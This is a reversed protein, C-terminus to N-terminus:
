DGGVPSELSEWSLEALGAGLAYHETLEIRLCRVTMELAHVNRGRPKQQSFVGHLVRREDKTGHATIFYRKTGRDEFPANLANDVFVRRMPRAPEFVIELHAKAGDPALWESAENGDLANRPAYDTNLGQETYGSARVGVGGGAPAFAGACPVEPGLALVPSFRRGAVFVADGLSIRRLDTRSIEIRRGLFTDAPLLLESAEDVEVYLRGGAARREEYLGVFHPFPDWSPVFDAAVTAWGTTPVRHFYELALWPFRQGIVMDVDRFPQAALGARVDQDPSQTPILYAFLNTFGIAATAMTAATAFFRRFRRSSGALALMAALWLLCIALFYFHTQGIDWWAVFALHAVASLLLALPAFERRHTAAQLTLGVCLAFLVLVFAEPWGSAESAGFSRASVSGWAALFLQPLADEPLGGYLAGAQLPPAKVVLASAAVLPAPVFLSFLAGPGRLSSDRLAACAALGVWPLALMPNFLVATAALVVVLLTRGRRQSHLLLYAGGAFAALSPPWYFLYPDHRFHLASLCMGLLAVTLLAFGKSRLLAHTLVAFLGLSLGLFLANQVQAVQLARGSYGLAKAMSWTARLFVESAPHKPNLQLEVAEVALLEDFGDDHFAKSPWVLAVCTLAAALAM